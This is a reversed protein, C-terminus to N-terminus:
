FGASIVDVNELVSLTFHQEWSSNVNGTKVYMNYRHSANSASYLAVFYCFPWLFRLKFRYSCSTQSRISQLQIYNKKKEGAISAIKRFATQGIEYKINVDCGVNCFNEYLIESYLEDINIDVGTVPNPM